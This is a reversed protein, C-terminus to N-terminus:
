EINVCPLEWGWTLTQLTRSLSVAHFGTCHTMRAGGPLSFFCCRHNGSYLHRRRRSLSIAALNEWPFISLLATQVGLSCPVAGPPVVGWREGPNSENGDEWPWEWNKRREWRWEWMKLLCVLCTGLLRCSTHASGVEWRSGLSSTPPERPGLRLFAM